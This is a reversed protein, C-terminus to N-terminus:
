HIITNVLLKYARRLRFGKMKEKLFIQIIINLLLRIKQKNKILEIIDQSSRPKVQTRLSSPKVQTRSSRTPYRGSGM